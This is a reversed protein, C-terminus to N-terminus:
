PDPRLLGHNEHRITVPGKTRHQGTLSIVRRDRPVQGIRDVDREQIPMHLRKRALLHANSITIWLPRINAPIRWTRDPRSGSVLSLSLGISCRVNIAAESSRGASYMIFM